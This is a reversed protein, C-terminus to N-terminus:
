GKNIEYCYALLYNNVKKPVSEFQLTRYHLSLTYITIFKRNGSDRASVNKM